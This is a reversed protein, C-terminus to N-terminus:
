ALESSRRALERDRDTISEASHTRWRLTVRDYSIAIDPHHDEAQALEAVRNVFAIAEAFGDFRFERELAGDVESWGETEAMGSWMRHIRLHNAIVIDLAHKTAFREFGARRAPSDFDTSTNSAHLSYCVGLGPLKRPAFGADCMRLMFDWDCYGGLERDLLGLERHAARPYAISSTLITNDKRLSGTSAALDFVERESGGDPDREHVIWGARFGFERALGESRLLSLHGPDDWWDDDDLWCVIVGRALGLATNRADVQGTGANRCPKIRGDGLAEAARVGEGEGDDVVILEWDGDDQARVSALSRLLAEPRGFTPTIISAFVPAAPERSGSLPARRRPCAGVFRLM